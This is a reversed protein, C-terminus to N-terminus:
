DEKKIKKITEQIKEMANLFKEIGKDVDEVKDLAKVAEDSLNTATKIINQQTELVGLKDLVADREEVLKVTAALYGKIAASGRQLDAYGDRLEGLVYAEQENIPKMMSRRQKNIEVQVGSAFERLVLGLNANQEENLKKISNLIAEKIEEDEINKIQIVEEWNLHSLKYASDLDKRFKLSGPGTGEVVNSIFHPIWTQTMFDDIDERLKDYYLQVFKEHSAQMESIQNGIVESLEITEKPASACSVFFLILIILIIKYSLKM